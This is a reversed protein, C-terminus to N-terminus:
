TESYVAAGYALLRHSGPPFEGGEGQDLAVM